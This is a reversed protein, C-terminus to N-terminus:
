QMKHPLATVRGCNFGQILVFLDKFVIVVDAKLHTLPLLVM